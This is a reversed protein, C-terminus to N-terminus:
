DTMTISLLKKIEIEYKGFSDRGLKNLLRLKQPNSEVMNTGYQPQNFSENVRVLKIGKFLLRALIDITNANAKLIKEMQRITWLSRILKSVPAHKEVFNGTGVSLFSTEALSSDLANLADAIAILIPNNAIFGGDIATINHQNQTEVVVKQFIPVAACSAQVAEAITAGFGPVFTAKLRYAQSVRNKFVLPCESEANLAVIGIGTQFATFKTNGLIKVLESRLISSKTSPLIPKMIHPIMRFYHEQIESVSWGLGLLAAIISGTSTGYIYDFIKHIPAPLMAELERLVGLTYVGKSGGGDLTLIKM